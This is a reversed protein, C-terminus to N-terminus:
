VIGCLKVTVDRSLLVLLARSEEKGEEQRWIEEGCLFSVNMRAKWVSQNHSCIITVAHSHEAQQTFKWNSLWPWRCLLVTLIICKTKIAQQSLCENIFAGRCVGAWFEREGSYGSIVDWNVYRPVDWNDRSLWVERDITRETHAVTWGGHTLLGGQHECDSKWTYHVLDRYSVHGVCVCHSQIHSDKKRKWGSLQLESTDDYYWRVSSMYKSRAKGELRSTM